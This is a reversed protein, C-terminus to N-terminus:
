DAHAAAPLTVRERLHPDAAQELGGRDRDTASFIAALGDGVVVHRTMPDLEAIPAALALGPVHRDLIEAVFTDVLGGHHHLAARNLLRARHVAGDHRRDVSGTSHTMAPCLGRLRACVGKHGPSAPVLGAM